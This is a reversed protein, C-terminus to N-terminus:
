PRHPLGLRQALCHAIYYAERTLVDAYLVRISDAPALSSATDGHRAPVLAIGVPNGNADIEVCVIYQKRDTGGLRDTVTVYKTGSPGVDLRIREAETLPRRSFLRAMTTERTLHHPGSGGAHTTM